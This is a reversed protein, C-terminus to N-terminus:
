QVTPGSCYDLAQLRQLAPGLSVSHLQFVSLTACSRPGAEAALVSGLWQGAFRPKSLFLPDARLM